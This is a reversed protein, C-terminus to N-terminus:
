IKWSNWECLCYTILQYSRQLCKNNKYKNHMPHADLYTKKLKENQVHTYIQTTSLDSHGLLEQVIRLDAKGDLMHTAFTHRFSHASINQHAIGLAACRHKIMSDVYQRNLPNGIKNVNPINIHIMFDRPPPIIITSDGVATPFRVAIIRDM